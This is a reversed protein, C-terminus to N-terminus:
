NCEAHPHGLQVGVINFVVLFEFQVEGV